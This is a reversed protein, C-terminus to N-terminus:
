RGRRLKRISTFVLMPLALLSIIGLARVVMDPIDIDAINAVSLVLSVLGTLMLTLAWLRDITQDTM